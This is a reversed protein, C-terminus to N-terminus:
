SSFGFLVLWRQYYSYLSVNFGEKKLIHHIRPAVYLGKHEKYIRKIDLKLEENEIERLSKTKAQSKYYTSRAVGLVNCM